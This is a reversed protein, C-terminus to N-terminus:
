YGKGMGPIPSSMAQDMPESDKSQDPSSIGAAAKAQEHASEANEHDSNHHAGKHHSTVHHSGESHSIEMKHAPGHQQVVEHIDMHSVDQGKGDQNDASQHQEQGDNQKAPVASPKDFNSKKAAFAMGM